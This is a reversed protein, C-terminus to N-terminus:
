GQVLAEPQWQLRSTESFSEKENKGWHGTYSRQQAWPSVWELSNLHFPSHESTLCGSDFQILLGIM